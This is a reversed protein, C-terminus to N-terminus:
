NTSTLEVTYTNETYTYLIFITKSVCFKSLSNACKITFETVYNICTITFM